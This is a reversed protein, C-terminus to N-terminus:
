AVEWLYYGGVALMGIVVISALTIFFYFFDENM